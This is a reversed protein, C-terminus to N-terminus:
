KYLSDGGPHYLKPWLFIVMHRHSASIKLCQFIVFSPSGQHDPPYSEMSEICPAWTRDRTPSSSGAHMGCSLARMGCRLDRTGCSLGPVVYMCVYMCLYINKFLFLSSSIYCIFHLVCSYFRFMFPNSDFPLKSMLSIHVQLLFSIM